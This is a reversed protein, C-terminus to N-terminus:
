IIKEILWLHGFPDSVTAQRYGYEHDTPESLAEAGAKIATSYLLHVDEVFVGISLTTCAATEPSLENKKPMEEHLHFLAGLIFMEAVHVSGDPNDWRRGEVAGFAAKYFEIGAHVNKLFLHPAFVADTPSPDPMQM